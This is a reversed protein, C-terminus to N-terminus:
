GPHKSWSFYPYCAMPIKTNARIFGLLFLILFDTTCCRVQMTPFSTSSSARGAGNYGYLKETDADWVIVMVDGGVGNMM